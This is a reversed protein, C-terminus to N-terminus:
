KVSVDLSGVLTVSAGAEILIQNCVAQTSIGIEPFVGGSPSSPITVNYKQDPIIGTSWNAANGWVASVAGTWTVPAVVKVSHDEVEGYSTISCPSGCDAL